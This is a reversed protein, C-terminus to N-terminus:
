QVRWKGKPRWGSTREAVDRAAMYIIRDGVFSRGFAMNLTLTLTTGGATLSSGMGYVTCQSNSVFGSTGLRLEPLLTDGSDSV